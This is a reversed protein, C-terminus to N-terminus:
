ADAKVANAKRPFLIQMEAFPDFRRSFFQDDFDKYPVPSGQLLNKRARAAARGNYICCGEAASTAAFLAIFFWLARQRM